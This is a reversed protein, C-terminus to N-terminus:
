SLFYSIHWFLPKPDILVLFLPLFQYFHLNEFILHLAFVLSKLIQSLFLKTRDSKPSAFFQKTPQKEVIMGEDMFIVEDAVEKAFTPGSLVALNINPLIDRVIESM